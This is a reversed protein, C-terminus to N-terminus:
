ESASQRRRRRSVVLGGIGTALLLLTAPEPNPAPDVSQPNPLVVGPAIGTGSLTTGPAGGAPSPHALPPPTTGAEPPRASGGTTPVGDTPQAGTGNAPATGAGPGGTGPTNGVGGAYTPPDMAPAGNPGGSGPTSATGSTGVGGGGGAFFIDSYTGGGPRRQFPNGGKAWDAVANSDRAVGCAQTERPFTAAYTSAATEDTQKAKSRKATSDASAIAGGFGIAGILVVLFASRLMDNELKPHNWAL